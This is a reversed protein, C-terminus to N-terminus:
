HVHHVGGSLTPDSLDALYSRSSPLWLQSKWETALQDTVLGTSLVKGWGCSNFPKHVDEWYAKIIDHCLDIRKNSASDWGIAFDCVGYVDKNTVSVTVVYREFEPFWTLYYYEPFSDYDSPIAWDVGFLYLPYLDIDRKVSYVNVTNREAVRGYHGDHSNSKGWGKGLVNIRSLALRAVGNALNVGAYNSENKLCVGGSESDYADVNAISKPRDRGFYDYLIAREVDTYISLM